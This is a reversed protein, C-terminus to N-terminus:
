PRGAEGLAGKHCRLQQRGANFLQATTAWAPETNARDYRDNRQKEQDVFRSLRTVNAMM